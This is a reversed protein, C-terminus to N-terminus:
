WIGCVLAAAACLPPGHPQPGRTRAVVATVVTLVQALTIMALVAAPSGVLAGATIALKVDGGGCAGLWFAVLYIVAAIGMGPAAAPCVVVAAVAACAAPVTMANPLKRVRLDSLALAVFWMALVPTMLQM